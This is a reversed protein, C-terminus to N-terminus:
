FSVEVFLLYQSTAVVDFIVRALIWVISPTVNATPSLTKTLNCVSGEWFPM